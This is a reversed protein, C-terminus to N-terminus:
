AQLKRRLALLGASGMGLLVLTSGGDPVTQPPGGVTLEGAVALGYSGNNAGPSWNELVAGTAIDFEYVHGTIDATWFSTGNPDINLAFFTGVRLTSGYTKIQNGSSDLEVIVSSDAVLVNGNALIRLAFASSGPLAAVNFNALQSSTSTDYRYINNGESTYYLTKQDAALDIWDSGRPGTAVSFTGVLTGASNRELINRTGDPQGVFFNGNQAFAISENHAGPDNAVYPNPSLAAGSTHDFATITSQSFSTSYLNGSGDFAMGTQYGGGGTLTDLLTGTQSFEQIMGNAGAVFVDGASFPVGAQAVMSSLLGACATVMARMLNNRM